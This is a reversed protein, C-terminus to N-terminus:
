IGLCRALFDTSWGALKRRSRISVKRPTNRSTWFIKNETPMTKLLNLAVHRLMAVNEPANDKRVRCEDERFAVDLVWHLSNEIGWHARVANAFKKADDGPLSSIFYRTELSTIGDITREAEVMGVSTLTSWKEKQRIRDIVGTVWYRRRETRGHGKDLTEQYAHPVTEFNEARAETLFDKVEDHLTGQNGKLSIVYDAGKEVIRAAIERQCGMADITVICGELHLIELLKPIATIENSREDTKVQGLVLGNRSAWASVMHIAAKKSARDFSRRLTKGDIAVIEGETVNAVAAVWSSFCRSFEEPDLMAFLRGFTDHSPIGNPLDLFTRFWEKRQEAFYQLDVWSDTGCIFGCISLVLIDSLSHLKTRDVRPDVLTAFHVMLSASKKLSQKM